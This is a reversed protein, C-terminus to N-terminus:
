RHKERDECRKSWIAYGTLVAAGIIGLIVAALVGTEHSM